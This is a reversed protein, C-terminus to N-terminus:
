MQNEIKFKFNKYRSKETTETNATGHSTDTWNHGAGEVQFIFYLNM